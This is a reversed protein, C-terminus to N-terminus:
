LIAPNSLMLPQWCPPPLTTMCLICIVIEQFVKEFHTYKSGGEEVRSGWSTLDQERPYPGLIRMQFFHGQHNLLYEGGVM